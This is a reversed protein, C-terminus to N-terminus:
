FYHVVVYVLVDVRPFTSFQFQSQDVLEINDTFGGDFDFVLLRVRALLARQEEDLPLDWSADDQTM